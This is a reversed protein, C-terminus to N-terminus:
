HTRHVPGLFNTQVRDVCQGDRYIGISIKSKRRTLFKRHLVVFFAGKWISSKEVRIRSSGILKISGPTGELRFSAPFSEHTKNVLEINYLNSVSDIGQEQFLLGRARLVTTEVDSRTVLAFTLTSLLTLLVLSYAMIRRTLRLPVGTRIGTESAYRILGQPLHVSEMIRNCADICATCNTCELQTGHRIDIGTPCVKVCARCDICDGQTRTENKHFKHRPEGRVYDYAVVISNPDLLVGQLRGYPCVVLCVQERMYAFVFFFVASFVLMASFGGVHAELPGTVIAWLSDFGIIYSLFNNSILFSLFFFISLKLLRKRVKGANWPAASLAKQQRGDGEIWYEIRRFVMEMFVTQPCAWGCFLRGFVVTFLVVFVVFTIMALGFLVFDQPWFVLGFLIFKRELVNILVLPEGNVKIHPLSFFILLYFYSTLERLHTLRGKPQVPFIWSRKGTKDITSVADRFSQDLPASEQGPNM